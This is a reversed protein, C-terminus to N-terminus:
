INIIIGRANMPPNHFDGDKVASANYFNTGGVTRTGFNVVDKSNHIHGFVHHKPKFKSVAKILGSCGALELDREYNFTVDLIGKPPTHTILLDIGEILVEGWFSGLKHRPRM